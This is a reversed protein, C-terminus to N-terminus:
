PFGHGGHPIAVSSAAAAEGGGEAGFPCLDAHALDYGSPASRSPSSTNESIFQALESSCPTVCRASNSCGSAGVVDYEPRLLKVNYEPRLLKM